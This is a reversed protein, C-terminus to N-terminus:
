ASRVSKLAVPVSPSRRAAASSHGPVRITSMVLGSSGHSEWTWRGSFSGSRPFRVIGDAGGASARWAGLVRAIGVDMLGFVAGFMPIACNGLAGLDREGGWRGVLWRM